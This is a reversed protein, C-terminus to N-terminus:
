TRRERVYLRLTALAVATLISGHDAGHDLERGILCRWRCRLRGSNRRRRAELCDFRLIREARVRKGDAVVGVCVSRNVHDFLEASPEDAM